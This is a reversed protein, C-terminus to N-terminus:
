ETKEVEEKKEAPKEETKKEEVEKKEAPEEKLEKDESAKEDSPKDEVQKAEAAKRQATAWTVLETETGLARALLQKETLPEEPPALAIVQEGIVETLFAHSRVFAGDAQFDALQGVASSPWHGYHSMQRGATAPWPAILGTLTLLSFPVAWHWWKGRKLGIKPILPVILMPLAALAFILWGTELWASLFAGALWIAIIVPTFIASWKLTGMAIKFGASRQTEVVKVLDKAKKDKKDKKDKKKKAKKAKKDEPPAEQESEEEPVAPAKAEPTPPLPESKPEPKPEPKPKPKAKPAPPALAALRAALEPDDDLDGMDGGLSAFADAFPDPEKAAPPPVSAPAEAAGGELDALFADIDEAPSEDKEVPQDSARSALSHLLDDTHNQDSM